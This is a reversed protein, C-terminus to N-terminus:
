GGSLPHRGENAFRCVRLSLGNPFGPMVSSFEVAAGAAAGAASGGDLGRSLQCVAVAMAVADTSMPATGSPATPWTM